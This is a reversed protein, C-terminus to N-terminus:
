EARSAVLPYPLDDPCPHINLDVPKECGNFMCCKEDHISDNCHKGGSQQATTTGCDMVPWVPKVIAVVVYWVAHVAYHVVPSSYAVGVLLALRYYLGAKGKAEREFVALRLHGVLAFALFGRTRATLIM